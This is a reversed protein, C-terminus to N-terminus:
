LIVLWCLVALKAQMVRAGAGQRASVASVRDPETSHQVPWAPMSSNLEGCRKSGSIRTSMQHIDSTSAVPHYPMYFPIQHHHLLQVSVIEHIMTDYTRILLNVCSQQHRYLVLEADLEDKSQLRITWMRVLVNCARLVAQM